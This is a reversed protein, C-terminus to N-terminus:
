VWLFDGPAVLDGESRGQPFVCALNLSCSAARSRSTFWERGALEQRLNGKQDMCADSAQLSHFNGFEGEL